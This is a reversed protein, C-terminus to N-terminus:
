VLCGGLIRAIGAADPAARLAERTADDQFLRSCKALLNLHAQFQGQPTAFLLVSHVRQKDPSDFEIGGSSRGFAIVVRDVFTGSAHPLATGRGIGTTNTAERLRIARTVALRAPEEIAKQDALANVLEEIAQWRDTAKLEPIIVDATV